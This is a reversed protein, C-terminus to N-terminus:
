TKNEIYNQIIDINMNELFYFFIFIYLFIFIEFSPVAPLENDFANDVSDEDEPFGVIQKTAQCLEYYEICYEYFSVIIFPFIYQRLSM